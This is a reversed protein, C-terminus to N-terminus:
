DLPIAPFPKPWRPTYSHRSCPFLVHTAVLYLTRTSPLPFPLNDSANKTAGACSRVASSSRASQSDEEANPWKGQTGIDGFLLEHLRQLYFCTGACTAFVRLDLSWSSWM